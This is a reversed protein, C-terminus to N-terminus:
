ICVIHIYTCMQNKEKYCEKKDIGLLAGNVGDITSIDIMWETSPVCGETNPVRGETNLGRRETSPVCGETNPVHGETNLDRRETVYRAAFHFDILVSQYKHM